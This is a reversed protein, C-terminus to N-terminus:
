DDERDIMRSAQYATAPISILGLLVCTLPSILGTLGIVTWGFSNTLLSAWVGTCWHCTAFEAQTSEKGWKQRIWTRTSSFISDRPLLRALRATAYPLQALVVVLVVLSAAFAYASIM